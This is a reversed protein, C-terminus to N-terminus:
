VRKFIIFKCNECILVTFLILHFYIINIVSYLGIGIVYVRLGSSQTSSSVTPHCRVEDVTLAETVLPLRSLVKVTTLCGRLQINQRSNFVKWLAQEVFTVTCYTQSILSISHSIRAQLKSFYVLKLSNALRCLNNPFRYIIVQFITLRKRELLGDRRKERWHIYRPGNGDWIVKDRGGHLHVRGPVAMCTTCSVQVHGLTFDATSGKNRISHPQRHSENLM